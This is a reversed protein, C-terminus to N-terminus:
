DNRIIQTTLVPDAHFKDKSVKKQKKKVKASEYASRVIDAKRAKSSDVEERMGSVAVNARARANAVDYEKKRKETDSNSNDKMGEKSATMRALHRATSYGKGYKGPTARNKTEYPPEFPPKDDEKEKKNEASETKMSKKKDNDFQKITAKIIGGFRKDGRKFDGKKDSERADKGSANKYRALLENSVENLEDEEKLKVNASDSSPRPSVVATNKVYQPKKPTFRGKVIREKESTETSTLTREELDEVEEKMDKTGQTTAAAVDAQPAKGEDKDKQKKLEANFEEESSEERMVSIEEVLGKVGEVQYLEVMERFSRRHVVGKGTKEM